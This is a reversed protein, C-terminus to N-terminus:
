AEGKAKAIAARASQFPQPDGAHGAVGDIWEKMEEASSLVAELAELLEPAAARIRSERELSERCLELHRNSRKRSWDWFDDESKFGAKPEPFESQLQDLISRGEIANYNMDSIRTSRTQRESSM